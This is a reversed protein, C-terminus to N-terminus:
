PVTLGATKDKWKLGFWGYIIRKVKFGNILLLLGKADRVYVIVYGNKPDTDVEICDKIVLGTDVNYVYECETIPPYGPTYEGVKFVAM